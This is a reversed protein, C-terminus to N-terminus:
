PAMEIPASSDASAPTSASAPADANIKSFLWEWVADDSWARTWADHGSDPYSTIRMEGGAAEIAVKHAELQELVSAGVEVGERNSDHYNHLAWYRGSNREPIKGKTMFASTSIPVCAAFRGPFALSTSMASTGGASLGTIYLRNLDVPPEKAERIAAYMADCVLNAFGNPVHRRALGFFTSGIGEPMMPAFIYCPREKQFEPATVKKFVTSQRFHNVLNAGMEGTGGIYVVLPVPAAPTDSPTPTFLLYPIKDVKAGYPPMRGSQKFPGREFWFAELNYPKMKEALEPTTEYPLVDGAYGCGIEGSQHPYETYPPNALWEDEARRRAEREAEEEARERLLKCHAIVPMIDSEIQADTLKALRAVEMLHARVEDMPMDEVCEAMCFRWSYCDYLQSLLPLQSFLYEDPDSHSVAGRRPALLTTPAALAKPMELTMETESKKAQSNRRMKELVAPPLVSSNLNNAHLDSIRQKVLGVNEAAVLLSNPTWFRKGSEFHRYFIDTRIGRLVLYDMDDPEETFDLSERLLCDYTYKLSVPIGRFAPDRKSDAEPCLRELSHFANTFAIQYAGPQWPWLARMAPIYELIEDVSRLEPPQYGGVNLFEPDNGRHPFSPLSRAAGAGAAFLCALSFCFITRM